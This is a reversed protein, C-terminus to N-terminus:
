QELSRKEQEGQTSAGPFSSNISVETRTVQCQAASM